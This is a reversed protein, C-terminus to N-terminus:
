GQESATPTPTVPGPSRGSADGAGTQSVVVVLAVLVGAIVASGLVPVWSPAGGADASLRTLRRRVALGSVVDAVAFPDHQM